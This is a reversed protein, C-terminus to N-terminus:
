VALLPSGAKLSNSIVAMRNSQYLFINTTELIDIEEYRIKWKTREVLM